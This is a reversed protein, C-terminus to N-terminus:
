IYKRVEPDDKVKNCYELATERTNIYKRVEPRDKIWRCYLLAWKATTIDKWAESKPQRKCEYYAVESFAEERISM